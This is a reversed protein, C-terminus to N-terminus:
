EDTLGLAANALMKGFDRPRKSAFETLIQAAWEVPIDQHPLSGFSVRIPQEPVPNEDDNRAPLNSM